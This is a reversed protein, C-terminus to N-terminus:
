SVYASPPATRGKLSGSACLRRWAADAGRFERLAELLSAELEHIRAALLLDGVGEFAAWAHRFATRAERFLNCVRLANAYHAWAECRERARDGSVRSAARVARRALELMAQPDEHRLAQSEDLLQQILPNM